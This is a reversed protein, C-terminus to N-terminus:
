ICRERFLLSLQDSGRIPVPSSTLRHRLGAAKLIYSVLSADENARLKTLSGDGKAKAVAGPVKSGDHMTAWVVLEAWLSEMEVKTGFDADVFRRKGICVPVKNLEPADAVRTLPRSEVEEDGEFEESSAGDAM